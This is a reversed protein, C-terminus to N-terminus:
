MVQRSVFTTKMPLKAAALRFAERAVEESVGEIEYLVKGSKADVVIGAYKRPASAANAEGAMPALLAAVTIAAALCRALVRRFQSFLKQSLM